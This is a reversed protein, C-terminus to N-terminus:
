LTMIAIIITFCLSYYLSVAYVILLLQLLVKFFVSNRLFSFTQPSHRIPSSNRFCLYLIFSPFHKLHSQHNLPHHFRDMSEYAMFLGFTFNALCSAMRQQFCFVLDM